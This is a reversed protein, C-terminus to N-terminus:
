ARKVKRRFAPAKGLFPAEVLLWSILALPLTALVSLVALEAPLLSIPVSMVSKHASIYLIFQAVPWGLVYMGYSLDVPLRLHPLCYAACLLAYGLAPLALAPLDLFWAMAECFFLAAGSAGLDLLIIKRWFYTLSGLAFAAVLPAAVTLRYIDLMMSGAVLAVVVVALVISRLRAPVFWVLAAILGYCLVEYFLTYLPGNVVGALPQGRFAAPLNHEISVLTVGRVVYIVLDDIGAVSGANLAIVCTVVLAFVLGPVLRRVRAMVFAGHNRQTREASAAILFGSLMFFVMVAWRGLSWGTLAILPEATDPGLTIPWAHSVIVASAAVLRIVDFNNRSGRNMAQSLALATM